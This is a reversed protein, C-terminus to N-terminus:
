RDAGLMTILILYIRRLVPEDEVETVMKIIESKYEEKREKMRIYRRKRIRPSRYAGTVQKHMGFYICKCNMTSGFIEFKKNKERNKIDRSIIRIESTM